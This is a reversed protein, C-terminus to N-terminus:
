GKLLYNLPNIPKGYKRLEFHTGRVHPAIYGSYAIKQGKKVREGEHVINKANHGYATLYQQNHKIIILHGYGPIGDGAYAVIGNAAAKVPQPKSVRIDIGKRGKLPSFSRQIKGKLPWCWNLSQNNQSPLNPRTRRTSLIPKGISLKPASPLSYLKIKQGPRIDYPPRLQNIKALTPYNKEYRFAISYLTEGPKVTHYHAKINFPKWKLEEVPALMPREQCGVALLCLALVNVARVFSNM